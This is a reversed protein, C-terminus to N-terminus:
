CEQRTEEHVCECKESSDTRDQKITRIWPGEKIKNKGHATSANTAAKRKCASLLLGDTKHLGAFGMAFTVDM